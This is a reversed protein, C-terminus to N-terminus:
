PRRGPSPSPRTGRRPRGGARRRAPRPTARGRRAHGRDRGVLVLHDERAPEDRLAAEVAHVPVRHRHVEGLDREPEHRQRLVVREGEHVVREPVAVREDPERAVCISANWQSASRRAELGAELRHLTRSCTAFTASSRSLIRSASSLTESQSSRSRHSSACSSSRCPAARRRGRAHRREEVALLRLLPLRLPALVGLATASRRPRASGRSRELLPAVGLRRERREVPLDLERLHELSLSGPNSAITPLGGNAPFFVTAAPFTPRSGPSASASGRPFGRCRRGRRGSRGALTRAQKRSPPAKPSMAVFVMAWPSVRAVPRRQIQVCPPSIKAARRRTCTAPARRPRRSRRGRRSPRTRRHGLPEVAALDLRDGGEQEVAAAVLIGARRAAFAPLLKWPLM